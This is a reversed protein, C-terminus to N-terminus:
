AIQRGYFIFKMRAYLEFEGIGTAARDLRSQLLESAPTAPEFGALPM